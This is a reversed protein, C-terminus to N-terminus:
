REDWTAGCPCERHYQTGRIKPCGPCYHVRVGWLRKCRACRTESSFEPLTAADIQDPDAHEQIEITVDAIPRLGGHADMVLTTLDRGRPPSM